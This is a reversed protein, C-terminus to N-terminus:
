RDENNVIRCFLVGLVVCTDAMAECQQTHEDMGDDVVVVCDGTSSASSTGYSTGRM